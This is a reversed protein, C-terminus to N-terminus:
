SQEASVVPLPLSGAPTNTKTNAPTAIFYDLLVLM